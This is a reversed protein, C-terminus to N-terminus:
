SDKKSPKRRRRKKRTKKLKGVMHDQDPQESKNFDTWWKCSADLDEGAENRLLMLDYAARFRPHHYIRDIHHRPTNELM